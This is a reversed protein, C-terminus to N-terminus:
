AHSPHAALLCVYLIKSPCSAASATRKAPCLGGLVFWPSQCFLHWPAGFSNHCFSPADDPWSSNLLMQGSEEHQAMASTHVICSDTTRLKWTGKAAVMYGWYVITTEMKYEMMGM